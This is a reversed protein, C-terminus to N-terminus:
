SKISESGLVVSFLVITPIPLRVLAATNCEALRKTSFNKKPGHLCIKGYLNILDFAVLESFFFRPVSPTKM